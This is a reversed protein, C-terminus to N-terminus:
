LTTSIGSKYAGPKNFFWQSLIQRAVPAAAVDGFGGNEVWVTVEIPKGTASAPVFCSYWAYDHEVGNPFYQATGTKGYVPKPFNGMVDASTGGSQSAAERLGTRITSLYEPNISLHRRPKPNIRQLITGNASQIDEGVHPTVITGGNALASYTVALQLPSVLDDGQGVAANVNDGYTWPTGTGIGCGGQSAPHKHRGHYPGTANECEKEQQNLYNWYRPSAMAGTAAGPLDIGTSRGIGFKGAWQQLPGGKISNSNLLGGLNYFFVDDSVKIAQTMDVVGNAAGGSNKLCIPGEHYCGTDDYTEYPTWKGSELAATATIPKFTSGTAGVSQIARNLLPDGTSPGFYRDYQSQTLPKTFLSPNYTPASGMAYIQGNQPDMAVFAGGTGNNTAISRALAQQGVKQLQENISVQLTGGATAETPQAYGKFEGLSNVKVKEKGDFGQLFTNYQYELGSQGVDDTHAIGRFHRQKTECNAVSYKNVCSIPGVTGLVQAALSGQPYQRIYKQVVAVGPFQVQREGLYYQVDKGVNEAITVDDYPVNAVGQAVLCAIRSLRFTGSTGNPPPYKGDVHCKTPRNSVSLVSALRRYLAADQAPPRDYNTAMESVTISRPLDPASVEVAPVPVSVVLPQGTSDIIEGRPAPISIDRLSNTSAQALYQTGTLVQLFWLRFFIVAFVILACSGVIAVRLALQPTMPPTRNEQM